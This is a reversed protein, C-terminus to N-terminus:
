FLFGHEVSFSGERIELKVPTDDSNYTYMNMNFTGSFKIYGDGRGLMQEGIEYGTVKIEGITNNNNEPDGSIFTKSNNFDIYTAQAYNVSTVESEDEYFPYTGRPNSFKSTDLVISITLTESTEEQSNDRSATMIVMYEDAEDAENDEYDSVTVITAYNSRWTEGDIKMTVTSNGNLMGDDEIDITNDDSSCSGMVLLLFFLSSFIFNNKFYIRM